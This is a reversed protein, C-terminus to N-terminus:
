CYANKGPDTQMLGSRVMFEHDCNLMSATNETYANCVTHVPFFSYETCDSETNLDRNCMVNESFVNYSLNIVM